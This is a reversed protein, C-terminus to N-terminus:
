SLFLRNIIECMTATSMPIDWGRFEAAKLTFGNVRALTDLTQMRRGGSEMDMLLFDKHIFVRSNVGNRLVLIKDMINLKTKM